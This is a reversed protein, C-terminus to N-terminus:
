LLLSYPLKIDKGFVVFHRTDWISSHQSSNLSAAVQSMWEHWSTSVDRVMSQLNNVLKRNQREVLGNSAPHYTVLNCKSDAFKWYSKVTLEMDNDSMLVRFTNFKCFVEDM